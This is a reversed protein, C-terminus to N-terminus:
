PAHWGGPSSPEGAEIYCATCLFHGNDQNLTGEFMLVFSNATMGHEDGMEVYEALEEPRKNCGTCIPRVQGFEDRTASM